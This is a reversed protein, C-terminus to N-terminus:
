LTMRVVDGAVRYAYSSDGVMDWDRLICNMLEGYTTIAPYDYGTLHRLVKLSNLLHLYNENDMNIPVDGYLSLVEFPAKTTIASKNCIGAAASDCCILFLDKITM